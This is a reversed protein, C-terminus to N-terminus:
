SIETALPFNRWCKLNPPNLVVGTNPDLPGPACIGIGRMTARANPNATFLANIASAVAALGVAAGENAIMPKRVSALIQGDCDVLGVGVQTGGVDVGVFMSPTGGQTAM